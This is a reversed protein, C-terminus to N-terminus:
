MAFRAKVQQAAAGEAMEQGFFAEIRLLKFDGRSLGAQQDLHLVDLYLVTRLTKPLGQCRSM